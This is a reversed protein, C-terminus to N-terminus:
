QPLGMKLLKYVEAMLYSVLWGTAAFVLIPGFQFAPLGASVNGSVVAGIVASALLAMIMHKNKGLELGLLGVIFRVLAMAVGLGLATIVVAWIAGGPLAIGVMSAVWSAFINGNAAFSTLEARVNYTAFTIGTIGTQGVILGIIFPLILGLIGGAIAGYILWGELQKFNTAM